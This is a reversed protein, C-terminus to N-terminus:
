GCNNHLYALAASNCCCGKVSLRFRRQRRIGIQVCPYLCPPVINVVLQSM